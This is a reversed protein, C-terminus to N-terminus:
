ISPKKSVWSVHKTCDFTLRASFPVHAGKPNIIIERIGSSYVNVARDFILGWISEPDPGEGFLPENCDKMKLYM